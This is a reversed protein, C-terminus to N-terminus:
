RGAVRVSATRFTSASHSRAPAEADRWLPWKGCWTCMQLGSMAPISSALLPACSKVIPPCPSDRSRRLLPIGWRRYCCLPLHRRKDSMKATGGCAVGAPHVAAHEKPTMWSLSSRLYETNHETRSRELLARAHTLSRFGQENLCEDLLRGNPSEGFGNQWPQGLRHPRHRDLERPVLRRRCPSVRARRHHRGKVGAARLRLAAHRRAASPGPSPLLAGKGWRGTVSASRRGRQKPWWV